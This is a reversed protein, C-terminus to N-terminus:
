GHSNRSNESQTIWQCNEPGYDKANDLRDITLGEKYTPAMDTYFNDFNHWRDCMKIGKGGYWPYADVAPNYCRRRITKWREYLLTGTMGHTSVTEKVRDNRYCGCSKTYGAMVNLKLYSKVIGCDCICNIKAGITDIVTLRGFRQGNIHRTM